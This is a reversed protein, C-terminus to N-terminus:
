FLISQRTIFDLSSKIETEGTDAECPPPPPVCEGIKPSVVICTHNQPCPDPDCPNGGVFM